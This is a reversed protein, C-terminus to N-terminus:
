GVVDAVEGVGDFSQLFEVPSRWAVKPSQCLLIATTSPTVRRSMALRILPFDWGVSSDNLGPIDGASAPPCM